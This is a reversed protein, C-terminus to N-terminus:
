KPKGNLRELANAAAARVRPDDDSAASQLTPVFDTAGLQLKGLAAAAAARRVPDDHHLMAALGVAAPEAALGMDGLKEAAAIAAPADESLVAQLLPKLPGRAERRAKGALRRVDIQKAALKARSRIMPDIDEAGITQLAPLADRAAPGIRGLADLAHRQSTFDHSGALKALRNTAPAADGALSGLADIAAFRVWRDDDDLAAVLYDRTSKGGRGMVEVIRAAAARIKAEPSRLGECLGAATDPGVAALAQVAPFVFQFDEGNGPDQSIHDLTKV